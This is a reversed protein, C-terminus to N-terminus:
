LMSKPCAPPLSVLTMPASRWLTTQSCPCAPLKDPPGLACGGRRRDLPVGHLLLGSSASPAVRPGDLRAARLQLWRTRGARQVLSQGGGAAGLCAAQSSAPLRRLPLSLELKLGAVWHNFRARQPSAREGPFFSAFHHARYSPVSRTIVNSSLCLELPIGSRCDALCGLTLLLSLKSLLRTHHHWGPVLTHIVPASASCSLTIGSVHSCGQSSWTCPPRAASPFALRVSAPGSPFSEAALKCLFIIAPAALPAPDAASKKRSCVCAAPFVRCIRLPFHLPCSAARATLWAGPIDAFFQGMCAACCAGQVGRRRVGAPAAGPRCGPLVHPGAPRAALDARRGDRRPELGRGRAGDGAPRAAPRLGASPAVGGVAPLRPPNPHPPPPIPNLCSRLCGCARSLDVITQRGVCPRLQIGLVPNGKERSVQELSNGHGAREGPGSSAQGVSPNGSLDLGCVGEGRLAVALRATDLAEEASQRRDISLLLQVQIDASPASLLVFPLM